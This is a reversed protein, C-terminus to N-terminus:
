DVQVIHQKCLASVELANINKSAFYELDSQFTNLVILTVFLSTDNECTSLTM